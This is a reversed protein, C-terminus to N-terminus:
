YLIGDAFEFSTGVTKKTFDGGGDESKIFMQCENIINSSAPPKSSPLLSEEDFNVNPSIQVGRLIDPAKDMKVFCKRFYCQFLM